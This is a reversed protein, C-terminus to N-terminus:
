FPTFFYCILARSINKEKLGVKICIFTKTYNLFIGVLLLFTKFLFFLLLLRLINGKAEKEKGTEAGNRM